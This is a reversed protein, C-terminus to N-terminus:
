RGHHTSTEFKTQKLPLTKSGIIFILTLKKKKKKSSSELIETSDLSRKEGRDEQQIEEDSLARVEIKKEEFPELEDVGEDDKEDNQNAGDDEAGGGTQMFSVKPNRQIEIPIEESASTKPNSYLLPDKM